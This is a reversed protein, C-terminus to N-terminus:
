GCKPKESRFFFLTKVALFSLALTGYILLWKHGLWFVTFSDPTLFLTRMAPVNKGMKQYIGHFGTQSHLWQITLVVWYDLTSNELSVPTLKPMSVCPECYQEHENLLVDRTHVSVTNKVCVLRMWHITPYSYFVDDPTHLPLFHCKSCLENVSLCILLSVLSVSARYGSYKIWVRRHDFSHFSMRM